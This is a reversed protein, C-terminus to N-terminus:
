RGFILKRCLLVIGFFAFAGFLYSTFYFDIFIDAINYM